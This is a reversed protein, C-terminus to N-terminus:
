GGPTVTFTTTRVGHGDLLNNSVAGTVVLNATHTTDRDPNYLPQGSGLGITQSGIKYTAAASGTGGQLAPLKFVLTNNANVIWDAKNTGGSGANGNFVAVAANGGITNSVTLTLTNALAANAYTLPTNFVVYLNAAVNASITGNANLKVYMQTVDAKGTYTNSNYGKGAVGPNAAVLVEDIQRTGRNERRVWGKNTVIVNRKSAMQDAQYFPQYGAKMGAVTNAGANGQTSERRFGWKSM